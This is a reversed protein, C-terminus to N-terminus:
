ISVGSTGARAIRERRKRRRAELLADGGRSAHRELFREEAQVATDLADKTGTPFHRAEARPLQLGSRLYLRDQGLRNGVRRRIRDIKAEGHAPPIMDIEPLRRAARNRDLEVRHRFKLASAVYTQAAVKEVLIQPEFPLRDCADQWLAYIEDIARDPHWRDARCDLWFVRGTPPDYAFWSAATRAASKERSSAPDVSIVHMPLHALPLIENPAPPKGEERRGPIIACWGRHHSGDPLTYSVVDLHFDRFRAPDLDANRRPDNRWQADFIEDGKDRRVRELSEADPYRSLWLPTDSDACATADVVDDQAGWRGCNGTGHVICRYASRRWVEWDPMEVHVMTNVDNLSWRNEILLIAGGQPQRYDSNELLNGVNRLWDKRRQLEVESKWSQEGVLDDILLLEARGGQEKSELGVARMFDDRILPNIRGRPTWSGESWGAAGERINFNPWVFEPFAWRLVPNLMWHDRAVGTFITAREKSDSGVVVRSDVGRIHPHATMFATAREIEEPFDYTESPRQIAVWNPISDTTRTSKVHGRPDECLGRKVEAIVWQIWDCSERFVDADLLNPLENYCAIAKTYAFLSRRVAARFFARQKWDGSEIAERLEAPAFIDFGVSM